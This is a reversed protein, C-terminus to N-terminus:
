ERSFPRAPNPQGGLGGLLQIPAGHALLVGGAQHDEAALVVGHREDLAMSDHQEIDPERDALAGALYNAYAMGRQDQDHVGHLGPSPVGRDLAGFHFEGIM